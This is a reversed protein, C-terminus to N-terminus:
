KHARHGKVALRGVTCIVTVRLNEFLVAIPQQLNLRVTVIKQLTAQPMERQVIRKKVRLFSGRLKELAQQLRGQRGIMGQRGLRNLCSELQLQGKLMSRKGSTYPCSGRLKKLAQRLRGQRGIMGQRGVRNLCSGLQLRGKLMGRKGLTYLCSGRLKAQAQQM